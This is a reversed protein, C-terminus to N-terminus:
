PQDLDQPYAQRVLAVVRASFAERLRRTSWEAVPQYLREGNAGTRARGERDLEPRAPLSAWV